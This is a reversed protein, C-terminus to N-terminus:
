VTVEPLQILLVAEYAPKGAVLRGDEVAPVEDSSLVGVVRSGDALVLPVDITLRVKRAVIARSM